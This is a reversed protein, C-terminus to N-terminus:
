PQPELIRPIMTDLAHRWSSVSGTWSSEDIAMLFLDSRPPMKGVSCREPSSVFLYRSTEGGLRDGAAMVSEVVEPTLDLDLGTCQGSVAPLNNQTNSWVFIAKLKSTMSLTKKSLHVFKSVLTDFGTESLIYGSGTLFEHYFLNGAPLYEPAGGSLDFDALSHPVPLAAGSLTKLSPSPTILWDFYGSTSHGGSKGLLSAIIEANENIQYATQCSCGLSILCYEDDAYSM